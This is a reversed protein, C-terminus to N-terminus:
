LNSNVDGYWKYEPTSALTLIPLEIFAVHLDAFLINSSWRKSDHWTFHGKHGPWTAQAFMYMTAEGSLITRSPSVIMGAKKVAHAVVWVASNNLYENFTYSTGTYNWVNKPSVPIPKSFNDSPCKYTNNSSIYGYLPRKSVNTSGTWAQIDGTNFGCAGWYGTNRPIGDNYDCFYEGWALGIQKLNNVCSIRKAVARSKNLAPLLLSALIAIIAMVVLLEILTFLVKPKM